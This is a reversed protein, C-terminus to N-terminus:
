LNIELGASGHPIGLTYHGAATPIALGHQVKQCAPSTVDYGDQRCEEALEPRFSQGANPSFVM